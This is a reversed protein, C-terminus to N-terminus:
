TRLNHPQQLRSLAMQLPAVPRHRDKIRPQQIFKLLQKPITIRFLHLSANIPQVPALDPVLMDNPLLISQGVVRLARTMEISM